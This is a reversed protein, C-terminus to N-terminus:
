RPTLRPDSSCPPALACRLACRSVSLRAGTSVSLFSPTARHGYVIVQHFCAGKLYRAEALQRESRASHTMCKEYISRLQQLASPGTMILLKRHEHVGNSQCSTSSEPTHMCAHMGADWARWAHMGGMSEGARGSVPRIHLFHQLENCALQIVKIPDVHRSCNAAHSLHPSRSALERAGDLM